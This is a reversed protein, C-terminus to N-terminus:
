FSFLINLACGNGVTDVPNLEPPLAINGATVPVIATGDSDFAYSVSPLALSGLAM